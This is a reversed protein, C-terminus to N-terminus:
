DFYIYVKFAFHLDIYIMFFFIMLHVRVYKQSSFLKDLDDKNRLDGQLWFLGDVVNM